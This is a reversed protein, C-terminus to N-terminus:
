KVLPVYVVYKTDFFNEGSYCSLAFLTAPCDTKEIESQLKGGKLYLIGNKLEHKSHPLIKNKVWKYFEPLQTVARSVVFDFKEQVQEARIVQTKVNNLGLNQSIDQVVGIKKHISDTLTFQTEPFLIALPLGPFGGGTGVDLIHSGPLFQTIKAIMLSHLIHRVWLHETDKRSILNIKENWFLMRDHLKQFQEIQHSTLESFYQTLIM